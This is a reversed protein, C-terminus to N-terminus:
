QITYELKDVEGLRFYGLAYNASNTTNIINGRVKTPPTQFPGSGNANGLLLNMYNYYMESVGYITTNVTNGAVLGENSYLASLNNGQSFEDKLTQYETFANVTTDFRSLYFNSQNPIDNFNVKIGIENSNFGLDNRQEVDTISPTPLLKESAMYTQGKYLITLIYTERITPHFNNCTYKGTISNPSTEEIFSFITNATNTIFVTAGAVKPIANEYYGTTTSLKITQMNGSTGKQWNISAEIVLRPTATPLDVNVVEECSAFLIISLFLLLRKM